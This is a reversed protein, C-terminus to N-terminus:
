RCGATTRCSVNSPGQASQRARDHLLNDHHGQMLAQLTARCLASRCTAEKNAGTEKPGMSLSTDAVGGHNGKSQSLSTEDTEVECHPPSVAWRRAGHSM